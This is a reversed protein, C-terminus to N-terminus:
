IVKNEQFNTYIKSQLANPVKLVHEKTVITGTIPVTFSHYSILQEINELQENGLKFSTIDNLCHQLRLIICM